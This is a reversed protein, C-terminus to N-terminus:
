AARSASAPTRTRCRVSAPIIWPNRLMSRIEGAAAAAPSRSKASTARSIPVPMVSHGPRRMLGTSAPGPSASGPAPGPGPSAPGPAPRVQAPRVQLQGSRSSAPGSGPSGPGSPGRTAQPRATALGIEAALVQIAGAAPIALLAVVFAGFVGGVWDGVSAGVLISMLVLLPNVGVTRSMVLPNLVHNEIQTYVLFVVLTIIGATLSHGVAFLVTLIGALAGGIM